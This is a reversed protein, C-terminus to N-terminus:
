FKMEGYKGERSRLPEFTAKGDSAKLVASVIENTMAFAGEAVTPYVNSGLGGLVRRTENEMILHSVRLAACPTGDSWERPVEISAMGDQLMSFVFSNELLTIGVPLRVLEKMEIKEVMDSMKLVPRGQAICNMGGLAAFALAILGRTLENAMQRKEVKM